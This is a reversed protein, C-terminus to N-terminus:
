NCRSPNSCLERPVVSRRIFSAPSGTDFLSFLRESYARMVGGIQFAVGVLNTAAVGGTEDDSGTRNNTDSQNTTVIAVTSSTFMSPNKCEFGKHGM